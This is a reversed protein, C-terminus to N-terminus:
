VTNLYKVVAIWRINFQATVKVRMKLGFRAVGCAIIIACPTSIGHQGAFIDDYHVHGVTKKYQVAGPMNDLM